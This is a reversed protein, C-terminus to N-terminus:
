HLVFQAWFVQWVKLESVYSWNKWVPGWKKVSDYPSDLLIILDKFNSQFQPKTGLFQNLGTSSLLSILGYTCFELKLRWLCARMKDLIICFLIILDKFFISRTTQPKSVLNPSNPGSLNILNHTTLCLELKWWCSM